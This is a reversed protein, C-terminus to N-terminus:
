RTKVSKAKSWDSYYTGNGAKAYTRVQVYYKKNAKLKKVSKSTATNKKVTVTKAKSM